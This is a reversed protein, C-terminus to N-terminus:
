AVQGRSEPANTAQGSLEKDKSGSIGNEEEGLESALRRLTAQFTEEIVGFLQVALQPTVGYLKALSSVADGMPGIEVPEEDAMKEQMWMAMQQVIGLLRIHSGTDDVMRVRDIIAKQGRLEVQQLFDEHLGLAKGFSHIDM